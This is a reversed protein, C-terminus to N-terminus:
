FNHVTVNSRLFLHTLVTELPVVSVRAINFDLVPTELRHEQSFTFLFFHCKCKRTSLVPIYVASKGPKKCIKPTMRGQIMLVIFFTPIM